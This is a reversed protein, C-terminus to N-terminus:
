EKTAADEKPPYGVAVVCGNKLNRGRDTDIEACVLYVAGPTGGTFVAEAFDAGIEQHTVTLCDQTAQACHVSWGADAGIKEGDQLVARFDARHCLDRAAPKLVYGSM